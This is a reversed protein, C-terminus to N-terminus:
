AIKGEEDIVLTTRVVSMYMRVYNKKGSCGRVEGNDGQWPRPHSHLAARIEVQLELQSKVSDRSVRLIVRNKGEFSSLYDGFDCAEKTCGSINGKPYISLIVRKGLLSGLMLDEGPDTMATFDPAIDSLNPM